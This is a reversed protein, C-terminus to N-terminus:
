KANSDLTKLLQKRDVKGNINLPFNSIKSVSAPLMYDPIKNKLYEMLTTIDEQYNELFLHIQMTGTKNQFAVAAVNSLKTYERVHFEIEGLEIRFGQIKIQSDNRGCFMLDNNDDFFALDGSKYFTKNKGKYKIKFFTEKNRGPDKWYGPTLQEGSLCLEGKEGNALLQLNDDVVIAEVNKMPVGLSVSGNFSRSNSFDKDFIVYTCFVTAETPGYTNIIKGNPMCDSWEKALDSYLAEGCFLSYKLKDLKIEEFYPRLYALVSPVLSAFTIENEELSLYVNAYRVGSIPITYVCAGLCLPAVYCFVSFDFTLEFMQLFRDNGDLELNFNMFSDIFANLNGRTIPIGKPEGTTGSTFLLYAIENDSITPPTLYIKAKPLQRTDTLRLNDLSSLKTINDDIKSTLVTKIGTSDIIKKNRSIPNKPNIPVYGYGAYLVAFLSSYTDIDSLDHALVGILKEGTECNNELYYRITSVREAFDQYTFYEGDIFFSNNDPSKKHSYRIRELINEPKSISILLARRDIKGNVNLPFSPLNTFTSPVMYKPLKSKLYNEIETLDGSFNELFLHIQTTGSVNQAAVAAINEGKLFERTYHEIESLEVRFGQVKVQHDIRGCFMFDGDEDIFALDGTRYFKIKQGNIEKTFFAEKNKEANKWYGPTLQGGTLSLEGKEGPKVEKYNEDVIIATMNQMPKGICVIGNFNKHNQLTWDYTLCYITAETPGYVNQLRANPICEAWELIIDDYLAEGCFMSWRLKELKIEKFFPRLYTIISPVMLAFTLEQEELLSYVYSYKIGGPPVTYVSAGECLPTIYSTVSLDFTLDFMQLCRDDPTLKYGLSYFAGVYSKLNARSIPVGKPVGTSGSTFLLYANESDPVDPLTLPINCDSLESTNIVTVNPVVSLFKVNDNVNSSLIINVESKELIVKNRDIPYEPNIPVFGNGSFLIGLITAYTNIDDYTTVGILRTKSEPSEDIKNKINSVLQELESYKYYKNKIFFANRDPYNKFSNLIKDLM